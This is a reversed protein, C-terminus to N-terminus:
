RQLFDSILAAFEESREIQTWHGCRGFVHLQSNDILDLLRLSAELPIVQDDRGHVLLTPT